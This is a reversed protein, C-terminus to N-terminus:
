QLICIADVPPNYFPLYTLGTKLNTTPNSSLFVSASCSFWPISEANIFNADYINTFIRNFHLSETKFVIAKYSYNNLITM